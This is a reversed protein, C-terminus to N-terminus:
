CPALERRAALVLEIDLCHTKTSRKTLEEVASHVEGESLAAIAIRRPDNAKPACQHPGPNGRSCEKCMWRITSWDEVGLERERALETLISELNPDETELTVEYTSYPSAQWVQLEDFVPVEEGNSERRGNAAGDNLVIDRFRHESEPLPVNLIVLRAPDLREGWVVEGDREPNLRVCAPEAQGAWEGDGDPIDVGFWRWAKRATAWDHLATAAIGLNWWAGEDQDNLETARINCRLSEEWNCLHKAELGLNYHPVSWSPDCRAAWRYSRVARERQGANAATNGRTNLWEALLHGLM